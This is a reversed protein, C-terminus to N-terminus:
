AATPAAPTLGHRRMLDGIAARDPPVASASLLAGIEKFYAPGFVAPTAVALFRADVDGRNDFGQVSGRSASPM